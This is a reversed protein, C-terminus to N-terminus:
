SRIADDLNWGIPTLQVDAQRYAELRVQGIHAWNTQADHFAQLQRTLEQEMDWSSLDPLYPDVAYRLRVTNFSARYTKRASLWARYAQNAAVDHDHLTM